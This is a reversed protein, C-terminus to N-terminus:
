KGRSLAELKAMRDLVHVGTDISPFDEGGEDEGEPPQDADITLPPVLTQAALDAESPTLPLVAM